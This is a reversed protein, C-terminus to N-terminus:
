NPTVIEALFNQKQSNPWESLTIVGEDTSITLIEELVRQEVLRSMVKIAEKNCGLKLVIEEISKSLLVKWKGIQDFPFFDVYTSGTKM